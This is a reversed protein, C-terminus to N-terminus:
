ILSNLTENYKTRVDYNLDITNLIEQIEPIANPDNLSKMVEALRLQVLPSKQKSISLILGERVEPHDAYPLLSELAALRVNDNQDMVLVSLLSQIIADDVENLDSVM